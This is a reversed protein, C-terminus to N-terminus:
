FNWFRVTAMRKVRKMEKDAKAIAKRCAKRSERKVLEEHSPPIALEILCYMAWIAGAIICVLALAGIYALYTM